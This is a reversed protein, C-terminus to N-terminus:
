TKAEKRNRRRLACGYVLAAAILLLGSYQYMHTGSGGTVPLTVGCCNIFLVEGRVGNVPDIYSTYRAEVGNEDVVKGIVNEGAFNDGMGFTVSKTEETFTLANECNTPDLIEIKTLMYNSDPNEQETIIYTGRYLGIFSAEGEMHGAPITITRTEDYADTYNEVRHLKFTFTQDEDSPSDGLQKVIRIVGGIVHVKHVNTKEVTGLGTPLTTGKGVETGPSGTGNFVNKAPRGYEGLGYATYKVKLTYTEVPRDCDETLPQGELQCAATAVHAKYDATEGTKELTFTFYGVPGHSSADDYTYDLRVEGGNTLTKWQEASLTGDTLQEALAYRLYFTEETLGDASDVKNLVDGMGDVLKFIQTNNFFYKLSDLPEDERSNIMDGLYVTVESSDENMDLLRVNVTPKDFEKVAEHVTISASKNTDIANGGIFDEKAKVYFTGEWGLHEYYQRNNGNNTNSGWSVGWKGDTYTITGYNNEQWWNVNGAHYQGEKTIRNGADLLIWDRNNDSGIVTKGTAAGQGKPVWAIRQNEDALADSIEANDWTIYFTGDDKRQLLGTIGEDTRTTFKGDLTIRDGPQLEVWDKGNSQELLRRGTAAAGNQDTWAIPYFSDSIEDVIDGKVVLEEKPRFANFMLEQMKHVLEAADDMACFYEKTTAIDELLKKGGEAGGMGLSVTMLTSKSRVDQAQLKANGYVTNGNAPSNYDGLNTITSGGSLVPAGDTILITYTHQADGYGKNANLYNDYTYELAIDQRTGGGTNIHSVADVLTETNAPTLELPGMCDSAKVEKTFRVLTVRNESNVDALEYIMNTLAEELYHLRNYQDTATYLKFNWDEGNGGPVNSIYNWLNSGEMSHMMGGGNSKNGTNKEANKQDNFSRDGPFIATENPDKYGTENNQRAKAYYSADQYLWTSGNHWVAYVTSTAAPDSIIYYVQSTDLGLDYLRNVNYWGRKHVNIVKGTDKLGSPFLMSNSQDVVFLVDVPDMEYKRMHSEAQLLIQYIRNNYDEVEATKSSEVKGLHHNIFTGITDDSVLAGNRITFHRRYRDDRMHGDPASIETITYGGDPIGAPLHVEISNGSTITAKYGNDGVIEFVCGALAKVGGDANECLNYFRLRNIDVEGTRVSQPYGYIYDAARSAKGGGFDSFSDTAFSVAADGEDVGYLRQAGNEAFHTIDTVAEGGQKPSVVVNFADNLELEVDGHFLGINLLWELEYGAEECRQRFTESDKAYEMVRLETGEPLELDARYAVTVVYNETEATQETMVVPPTPQPEAEEDPVIEDGGQEASYCVDEHVHEALACIQERHTESIVCEETHIHEIVVPRECTLVPIANPDDMGSWCVETHSHLILEEKGCIPVPEGLTYCADGHTHVDSEAETCVLIQEAYYCGDGHTHTKREALGCILAGNGDYCLDSHQHVIAESAFGGCQLTNVVRDAYCADEHTHAELGCILEQELAFVPLVMTCVTCFVMLCALLRKIGKATKLMAERRM